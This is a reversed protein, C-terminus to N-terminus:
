KANPVVAYSTDALAEQFVSENIDKQSEVVATKSDLDIIVREVGNVAQIKEAVTSACGECKMGEITLEKQM